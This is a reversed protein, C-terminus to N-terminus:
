YSFVKIPQWPRSPNDFLPMTLQRENHIAISLRHQMIGVDLPDLLLSPNCFSPHASLTPAQPTDEADLCVPIVPWSIGLFSFFYSRFDM